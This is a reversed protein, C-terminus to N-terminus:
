RRASGATRNSALGAAALALRALNLAAFGATLPSMGNFMPTDAMKGNVKTEHDPRHFLRTWKRGSEVLRRM